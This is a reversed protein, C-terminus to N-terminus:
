KRADAIFRPIAVINLVIANASVSSALATVVVKALAGPPAYM